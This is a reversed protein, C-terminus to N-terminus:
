FANKYKCVGVFGVIRSGLKSNDHGRVITGFKLGIPHSNIRGSSFFCLLGFIVGKVFVPPLGGFCCCIGWQAIGAQKQTAHAAKYWSEARKISFQFLLLLLHGPGSFCSIRTIPGNHGCFLCFVWMACYGSTNWTYISCEAFKWVWITSISRSQWLSYFFRFVFRGIYVSAWVCFDRCESSKLCTICMLAYNQLRLLM